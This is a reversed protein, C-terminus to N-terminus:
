VEKNLNNSMRSRMWEAGEQFGLVESENRLIRLSEQKIEEDSVKVSLFQNHYEHMANIVQRSIDRKTFGTDYVGKGDIPHDCHKQLIDKASKVEGNDAKSVSELAEIAVNMAETLDKPECENEEFKSFVKLLEAKLEKIKNKM